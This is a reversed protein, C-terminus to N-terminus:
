DPEFTATITTNSTGMTFTTTSSGADGVTYGTGEIIWGAFHYGTAHTAQLNLVDYEGISAPSSVNQNLDPNTVKVTGVMEDPANITLIHATVFEAGITAEATGMTFSTIPVDQNLVSAGEGSVTWNKFAYGSHPMAKINLIAGVGISAGDNVTHGLADMVRILGNAPSAVTLTHVPAFSATISSAETGMTFTTELADKNAVSAGEGTFTWGSFAFGSAPTAELYLLAGASIDAGNAVPTNQYDKVTFSGGSAPQTITLAFHSVEEFVAVITAEATGMTFTTSAANDNAVSAGTGTVTWQKFKYGYPSATAVLNLVVGEGVASGSIVSGNAGTVTFTGGTPSTNFTLPHTDISTFNATVTVDETGMILVTSAANPDSLSAGAGNVTWGTFKHAYDAPRAILQVDVGEGVSSGSTMPTGQGNYLTVAGGTSASFTLTHMAPVVIVNPSGTVNGENGGGYVDGKITVRTATAGTTGDGVIVRPNATVDGHNGGGFVNGEYDTAVAGYINNVPLNPHSGGVTGKLIRVEPSNIDSHEPNHYWMNSAGYVNGVFLPCSTSEVDCVTVSIKGEVNGKIDCGGFVNGITGGNVILHINGGHGAYSPQPGVPYGM